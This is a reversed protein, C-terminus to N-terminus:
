CRMGSTSAASCCTLTQRTWDWVCLRQVRQGAMTIPGARRLDPRPMVVHRACGHWWPWHGQYHPLRLAMQGRMWTYADEFEPMALAPDVFLIREQRLQTYLSAEAIMWVRM